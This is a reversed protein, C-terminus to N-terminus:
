APPLLAEIRDALSAIRTAAAEGFVIDLARPEAYLGLGRLLAVDERTFGYTQGHLCLAALAHRASPSAPLSCDGNWAIMLDGVSGEIYESPERLVYAFLTDTRDGSRRKAGEGAMELHAWEEATLAPKISM